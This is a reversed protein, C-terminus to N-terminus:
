KSEIGFKKLEAYVRGTLVNYWLRWDSIFSKIPYTFTAPRNKEVFFHGIWAFAYGSVFAPIILWLKGIGIATAFIVLGLTSGIFHLTRNFAYRHEHLYFPWFEKLTKYRDRKWFRTNDSSPYSVASAATPAAGRSSKVETHRAPKRTNKKRAAPKSKKKTPKRAKTKAKKAM